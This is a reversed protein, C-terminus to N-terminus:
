CKKVRKATPNKVLIIKILFCVMHFTFLQAYLFNLQGHSLHITLCILLRTSWIVLSYNVIYFASNVM